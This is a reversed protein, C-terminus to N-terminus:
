SAKLTTSTPPSLTTSKEPSAKAKNSELDQKMQTLAHKLTQDAEHRHRESPQSKERAENGVQAWEGSKSVNSKHEQGLKDRFVHEFLEAESMEKGNMIITIKKDKDNGNNSFGAQVAAEFAERALQKAMEANTHRINTTISTAGTAHVLHAQHLLDAKSNHKPHTFFGRGAGLSPFSMSFKLQGNSEKSVEIQLGSPSVIGGALAINNLDGAEIGQRLAHVEKQMTGTMKVSPNRGKFRMQKSALLWQVLEHRQKVTTDLDAITKNLNEELIKYQEKHKDELTKKLKEKQEATFTASIETKEVEGLLITHSDTVQKLLADKQETAFHKLESHHISTTVTDEKRLVRDFAEALMKIDSQEDQNSEMLTKKIDDPLEVTDLTNQETKLYSTIDASFKHETLSVDQDYVDLLGQGIASLKAPASDTYKYHGPSQLSNWSQNAYADIYSRIYGYEGFTSEWAFTFM